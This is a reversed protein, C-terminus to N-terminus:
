IEMINSIDWKMATCIKALVKAAATASKNLKESSLLIRGSWNCLTIVSNPIKWCFLEGTFLIQINQGRKMERIIQYKQQGSSTKFEVKVGISESNVRNLFLTGLLLRGSHSTRNQEYGKFLDRLLFSEGYNLFETECATEKLLVTM